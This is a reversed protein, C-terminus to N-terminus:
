SSRDMVIRVIFREVSPLASVSERGSPRPGGAAHLRPQSGRCRPGRASAGARWAQRSPCRGSRSATTSSGGRTATTVREATTLGAAMNHAMDLAGTHIDSDAKM